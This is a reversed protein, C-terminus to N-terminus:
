NGSFISVIEILSLEFNKFLESNFVFSRKECKSKDHYNKKKKKTIIKMLKRKKM